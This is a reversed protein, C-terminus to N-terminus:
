FLAGIISFWGNVQLNFGSVLCVDLCFNYVLYDYYSRSDPVVFLIVHFTFAHIFCWFIKECVFYVIKKKSLCVFYVISISVTINNLFINTYLFLPICVLYTCTPPRLKLDHFSFKGGGVLLQRDLFFSICLNSPLVWKIHM